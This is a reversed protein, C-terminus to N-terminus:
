PQNWPTRKWQSVCLGISVRDVQRNMSRVSSHLVDTFTLFDRNDKNVENAKTIVNNPFEWCARAADEVVVVSASVDPAAATVVSLVPLTSVSVAVTLAPLTATVVPCTFKQSAANVYQVSM